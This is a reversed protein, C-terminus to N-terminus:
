NDNCILGTHTTPTLRYSHKWREPSSGHPSPQVTPAMLSVEMKLLTETYDSSDSHPGSIHTITPLTQGSPTNGNKLLVDMMPRTSGNPADGDKLLADMTPRPQGNLADGDKLFADM